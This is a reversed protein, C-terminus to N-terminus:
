EVGEIKEKNGEVNMRDKVGNLSKELTLLEKNCRKCNVRIYKL